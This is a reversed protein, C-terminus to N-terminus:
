QRILRLIMLQSVAHGRRDEPLQIIADAYHERGVGELEHVVVQLVRHHIDDDPHPNRREGRLCTIISRRAFLVYAVLEFLANYFEQRDDVGSM